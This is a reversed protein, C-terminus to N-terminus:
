VTIMQHLLLLKLLRILRSYTSSQVQLNRVVTTRGKDIQLNFAFVQVTPGPEVIETDDNAYDLSIKNDNSTKGVTANDNVTANFVVVMKKDADYINKVYGDTDAKFNVAFTYETGKATFPVDVTYDAADVLDADSLSSADATYYVKVSNKNFSLGADM